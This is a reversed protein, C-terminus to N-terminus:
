IAQTPLTAAHRNRRASVHVALLSMRGVTGFMYGVQLAMAATVIGLAVTWLSSGAAMGLVLGFTAGIAIIPYLVLVRFRFALVAGCLFTLIALAVM